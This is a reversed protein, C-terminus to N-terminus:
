DLASSIERVVKPGGYVFATYIEILDAGAERMRMATLKSVIGGCGILVKHPGLNERAIRACDLARTFLPAGSLGGQEFSYLQRALKPSTNAVVAGTWRPEQRIVDCLRALEPDELDPSFKVFGFRGVPLLAALQALFEPTQLDRLGPTNPSSLNFVFGDVIDSLSRVCIAYDDLAQDNSTDKNKGVNAFLPFDRCYSRHRLINNRFAQVGVSNFGFHNVLARDGVRWLRPKSNGAQPKPTVSGVEAFGFGFSRLALFVEANKDLGAAVGLRSTM